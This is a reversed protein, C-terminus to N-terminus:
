LEDRGRATEAAGEGDLRRSKPNKNEEAKGNAQGEEQRVRRALAAIEDDYETWEPVQRRARDLKPEKTQPNNCLDITRAEALTEDSCWTECWLWEQPLSHIPIQFQMHNPLDQDLNALSNPDASLAHYQQRLRDGAALERFRRLDVAYLASIHYPRGRLYNAWYGTKWFRFGEMEARSDCMPAFGYPAGELDLAALDHMDTRVVQDADVFLVKDLSLPFLVDLFLIKYGWIERQKEKQQRLWHPWKYTVMEYKFKYEAALHPIFDKFSPSLFQEIFWFKVTHNTHRMVSVMMINLMREYLHGSAVSFINIEAHQTDSVSKTAPKALGLMGEAFKLGKSVFDMAGGSGTKAGVQKEELVDEKEMGPKRRLRPYLTTGQFDMLAIETTEDGPAPTWGHAGVSEMTFIDSSRGEKLRISYIGPNAKFQFFGLNAMVITDAFHSDKETALVLQVGRPPQGAPMERSHGEILINELEFVAEIHETGRKAKIDKIRLNDLDDVSVKSTVLWAPPVDMGAVLLTDQPVAAFNASLAKIKGNEDFSPSSELVYRYFRKVPLEGLEEAPNLFVRLHVGELESLVKLVAAWKQGVESAPNIVAVFSITSKSPDGVQFSTYTSNWEQFTTTRISPASDFIGQPLDSIGSLATVATLRAADVPGSVKDGLGLEEIAKYVPLIRAAREARLFEEFDEKQFQEAALIPGVRRGNLILANDGAKVNAEALFSALAADYTSDVEAKGSELIAELDLLQRAELLDGERAKLRQSLLSPSQTADMPNHVIDMRVGDNERRFLLAHFLLKQGELSDLDAIVTMAAWDDKASQEDAEVVPVKGLVDHHETYLKNVDLMTLNKPDEPFILTNRRTITGELFYGPVWTDEKVHGFYAAQQVTQLDAGLRQNMAHLWKEDRPIAFGDFFVSPVEGGARLRQVWHKALHIQKEHNEATFIDSFSLPNAEPRPPREKIAENFIAEDPKAAKKHELLQELYSTAAALGHNELLYYVVKAQEIAEGTPTLPVLGFRIPVLRKMFVLLQNTILKVDEPNTFDVPVVLNFIDKRVQPLGQGFHQILGWISPSFDKYRKDKEINNLWIIVRGDEIQDRWDFRRAEDDGSKAQAVEAHGLLSIAQQGTLGLDLVGNMLKRESKLLDVLGFPQIQRDILQAGNMWLVNMGEPVLVKRNGDHEARFDASVNHAALSTSYKPFDQTLKLLTDFPLESQMIFSAAKMGLSALESKELPKIDTIEEEDNLVVESSGLPKQANDGAAKATDTDRDDIVVYDTRKLTLEVGYGNVSLVENPHAPSRIYRVRYSGEGDRAMKMARTHFTGFTPSTIDAYLIVDQPGTGFKRDFPLTREQSNSQVEGRAADLAATCYQKGGVLFWQGCGDQDGSLSPEVATSYYQYHAEVRPAATRMSLGLKFTSLGEGDMHGDDRLVQLFKEYLSHDTRAEHFHGNAIRDLLAFYITANDSAATELLEVLYPPSPFAAKLAVNVSPSADVQASPLWTAALLATLGWPLQSLRIM